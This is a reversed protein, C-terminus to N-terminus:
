ERPNLGGPVQLRNNPRSCGPAGAKIGLCPRARRGQPRGQGGLHSHIPPVPSGLRGGRGEGPAKAPSFRSRLTSLLSHLLSTENTSRSVSAWLLSTVLWPGGHTLTCSPRSHPTRTGPVSPESLLKEAELAQSTQGPYGGPSPVGTGQTSREFATELYGRGGGARRLVALAWDM